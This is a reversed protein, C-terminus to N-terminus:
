YEDSLLMTCHTDDDIVFINLSLKDFNGKIMFEKKYPPQEQSHIIKQIQNGGENIKIFKFVQLYDKTSIDMQDISKWMFEQLCNPILSEVGNTIYKQNDFM